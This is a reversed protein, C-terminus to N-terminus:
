EIIVGPILSEFQSLDFGSMEQFVSPILHIYYSTSAYDTHGMWASLYALWVSLDKGDKMWLYLRHTAFSHRFSFLFPRVSTKIKSKALCIEFLYRQSDYSMQNGYRDPFLYEIYKNVSYINRLYSQTYEKLEAPLLIIRERLGKSERIFVKGTESNVDKIRINRVEQPRLGCCYLYRFMIPAVLHRFISQYYREMSDTVSFFQNLEEVSFVHSLPRSIHSGMRDPLVFANLGLNQLYKGLQRIPTIRSVFGSATETSRMIAWDLCIEKTLQNFGPYYQSCYRDFDMLYYAGNKYPIGLKRKHELFNHLISKFGSTFIAKIM